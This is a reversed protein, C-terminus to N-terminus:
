LLHKKISGRQDGLAKQLHYHPYGYTFTILWDTNVDFDKIHGHIFRDEQM